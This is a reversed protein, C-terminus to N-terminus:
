RRRSDRAPAEAADCVMSSLLTANETPVTTRELRPKRVPSDAARRYAAAYIPMADLAIAAIISHM